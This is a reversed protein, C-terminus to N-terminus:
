RDELLQTVVVETAPQQSAKAAQAAPEDEDHDALDLEGVQVM